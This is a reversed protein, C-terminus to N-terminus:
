ARKLVYIYRYAPERNELAYYHRNFFASVQERSDKELGYMLLMMATWSPLAANPYRTFNLGLDRFLNEMDGPDPLGLDLHQALWASGTLRYIFEEAQRASPLPFSIIAARAAVRTLESVFFAREEPLVHELVDLALTIDAQARAFPLPRGPRIDEDWVTHRHRTFFPRSAQDFAGTELILSPQGATLEDVLRSAAQFRQYRDFGLTLLRDDM